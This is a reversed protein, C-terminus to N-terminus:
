IMELEAMFLEYADNEWKLLPANEGGGNTSRRMAAYSDEGFAVVDMEYLEVGAERALICFDSLPTSSQKTDLLRQKLATDALCLNKLQELKEGVDM